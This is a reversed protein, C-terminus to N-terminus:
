KRVLGVALLVGPLVFLGPHTTVLLLFNVTFGSVIVGPLAYNVIAIAAYLAMLVGGALAFWKRARDPIRQALLFVLAAGLLYLLPLAAFHYIAAYPVPFFSKMLDPQYSVYYFIVYGVDLLFLLGLAAFCVRNRRQM